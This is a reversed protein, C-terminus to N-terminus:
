VQAPEEDSLLDEDSEFELDLGEEDMEEDIPGSEVQPGEKRQLNDQMLVDEVDKPMLGLVDALDKCHSYHVAVEFFGDPGKVLQAARQTAQRNKGSKPRDTFKQQALKKFLVPKPPILIPVGKRSKQALGDSNVIQKGKEKQEVLTACTRNKPAM